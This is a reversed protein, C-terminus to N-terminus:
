GSAKWRFWFSYLVFVAFTFDILRIFWYWIDELGTTEFCNKRIKLNPLSWKFNGPSRNLYCVNRYFFIHSLFHPSWLSGNPYLLISLYYVLLSCYFSRPNFLGIKQFSFCTSATAPHLSLKPATVFMMGFALRMSYWKLRRRCKPIRAGSSTRSSVM